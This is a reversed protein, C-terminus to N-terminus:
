KLKRGIGVKEFLTSIEKIVALVDGKRLCLVRGQLDVIPEPLDATISCLSIEKKREELVRRKFEEIVTRINNYLEREEKTLKEGIDEGKLALAVIKTSRLEILKKLTSKAMVAERKNGEPSTESLRIAERVREYFDEELKQLSGKMMERSLAKNLDLFVGRVIKDVDM